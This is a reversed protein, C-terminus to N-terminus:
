IMLGSIKRELELLREKKKRGLAYGGIDKDKRIVRHCPIILPFPNHKLAQGVARCANPRGAKKAVWEYTRVQGLPITLVAKYVERAFPTIKM